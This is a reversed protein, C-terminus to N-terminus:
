EKYDGFIRKHLIERNKDWKVSIMEKKGITISSFTGSAPIRSNELNLIRNEVVMEM